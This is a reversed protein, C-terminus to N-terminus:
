FACFSFNATVSAGDVRILINKFGCTRRKPFAKRGCTDPSNAPSDPLKQIREGSHINKLGCSDPITHVSFGNKKLRVVNWSRAWNSLVVTFGSVNRIRTSPCIRNSYAVHPHSYKQIRFSFTASEFIDPCTHVRRSAHQSVKHPSLVSPFNASFRLFDVKSM